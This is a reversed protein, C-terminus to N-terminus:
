PLGRERQDQHVAVHRLHVAALEEGLQAAAAPEIPHAHDDDGGLTVGLVGAPDGVEPLLLAVPARGHAGEGRERHIEPRRLDRGIGVGVECAARFHIGAFIRANKVEELAATFSPFFRTVDTMVDSGLTFPTNDGFFAMLVRGAAGSICSHGSPYEPHSPTAFLPTWESDTIFDNIPVEDFFAITEGVLAVLIATTTFVSIAAAAFLGIRVAEEGWRRRRVGLAGAGPAAGVAKSGAELQSGPPKPPRAAAM